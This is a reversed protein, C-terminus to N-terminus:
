GQTSRHVAVRMQGWVKALHNVHLLVHICTWMGYRDGGRQNHAYLHTGGKTWHTDWGGRMQDLGNALLHLHMLEHICTWRVGLTNTRHTYRIVSLEYVDTPRMQFGRYPGRHGLWGEDPGLGQDSPTYTDVSMHMDVDGLDARCGKCLQSVFM